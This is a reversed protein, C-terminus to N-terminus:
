IDFEYRFRITQTTNDASINYTTARFQDNDYAFTYDAFFAGGLNYSLTTSINTMTDSYDVGYDELLMYPAYNIETKSHLKETLDSYLKLRVIHRMGTRESVGLEADTPDTYRFKDFTPTYSVEFFNDKKDDEWIHLKLGFPGVQYHEYPYYIDGIKERNYNVHSVISWNDTVRNLQFHGSYASSKSKYSEATVPDAIDRQTEVANFEYRYKEGKNYLKAGYHVEKQDYRRQWSMPSAFVDLYTNSLDKSLKKDDINRELFRDFGTKTVEKFTTTEKVKEPLDYKAIREQQLKLQKNSEKDGYPHLYKKM